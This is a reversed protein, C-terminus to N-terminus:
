PLLFGAVKMLNRAPTLSPSRVRSVLLWLAEVKEWPARFGAGEARRAFLM